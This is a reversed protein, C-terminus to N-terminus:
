GNYFGFWAIRTIIAPDFGGAAPEYIVAAQRRRLRGQRPQVFAIVYGPFRSCIVLAAPGFRRRRGVVFSIYM